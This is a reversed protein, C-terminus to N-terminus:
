NKRGAVTYINIGRNKIFINGITEVTKYFLMRLKYCISYIVAKLRNQDVKKADSNQITNEIVKTDFQAKILRVFSDATLPSVLMKRVLCGNLELFNNLSETNWRTLHHPPYDWPVDSPRLRERNPVSFVINGDENLISKIGDIFEGPSELHELVEFFIIIDFKDGKYDRIFDLVECSHVDEIELVKKTFEIISENIDLATVNCGSEKLRKLFDNRGCGINLIKKGKYLSYDELFIKEYWSLDESAETPFAYWESREYWEKEASKMPDAFIGTCKGCSHFSFNDATYTSIPSTDESTCIPCEIKDM